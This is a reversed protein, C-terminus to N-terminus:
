RVIEAAGTVLGRFRPAVDLTNERACWDVDADMGADRLNRGSRSAQLAELATDYTRALRRAAVASDTADGALLEVIRGATYADDLALEGLVGACLVSVEEGHAGAAAAVADLNSLSGVYVHEFRTAADVLLRTGNTTSLVVTPALAREAVDRPSNGLDFGDVRVLDREGALVAPAEARALDRAEDIEVCCLVREYGCALAQAITSTARLVDIVIAVTGPTREAPTFAVHVLV